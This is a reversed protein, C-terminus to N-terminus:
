DYPMNIWYNPPNMECDTSDKSASFWQKTDHDYYCLEAITEDVYWWFGVVVQERKPKVKDTDFWGNKKM